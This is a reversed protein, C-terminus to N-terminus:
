HRFINERHWKLAENSLPTLVPESISKGNFESYYSNGPYLDNIKDSVIIKHDEGITIFGADFLCHLDKRLLIGNSQCHTGDGSYAIIHAADLSQLVCEGTFACQNNYNSATDNRFQQQGNRSLVLHSSGWKKENNLTLNGGIYKRNIADLIYQGDPEDIRYTKGRM